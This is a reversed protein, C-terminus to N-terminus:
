NDKIDIDINVSLEQVVRLDSTEYENLLERYKVELEGLLNTSWEEVVGGIEVKYPIYCNKRNPKIFIKYTGDGKLGFGLEAMSEQINVYMRKNAIDYVVSHVTQWTKPILRTRNIYWDRAIELTEQYDEIPSKVTLENGVFETYWVKDEDEITYTNSYILDNLLDRMGEKSNTLNYKDVIINWRELGSGNSTIHNTDIANDTETQTYPTYVKGDENFDVGDLYFNTMYNAEKIVTQNDIFEIVYCENTDAVMFHLEYGMDHLKKPFYIKAHKQIYDTADIASAFNDLIYRVLMSACLEIEETETPIVLNEGKDLPVVNMNAVVGCSNIGDYLMFPVIKYLESYTENEVFENTLKDLGGGIGISGYRDKTNPTRVIFEANNNYLWDLNRGYFDGNKIVSCGGLNIPNSQNKFYELAYDYDIVSYQLDYLYNKIKKIKTYYGSM